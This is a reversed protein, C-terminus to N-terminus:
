VTPPWWVCRRGTPGVAPGRRPPPLPVESHERLLQQRDEHQMLKLSELEATLKEVREKWWAKEAEWESSAQEAVKESELRAQRAALGDTYAASAAISVVPAVGRVEKLLRSYAQVQNQLRTIQSNSSLVLKGLQRRLRAIARRASGVETTHSAVEKAQRTAMNLAVDKELVEMKLQDVQGRVCACM